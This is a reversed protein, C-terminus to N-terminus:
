SHCKNKERDILKVIKEYPAVAYVEKYGRIEAMDEADIQRSAEIIVVRNENYNNKYFVCFESM